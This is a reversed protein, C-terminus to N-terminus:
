ALSAGCSDCFKASADNRTGCKSCFPGEAAVGLNGVGKGATLYELGDKAVPAVEGSVYRAQAGLFGTNLAGMGFIFLFGGAALRLILGGGPDPEFDNNMAHVLDIVAPIGIIAAAVVLVVGLIRFGNRVSAQRTLGPNTTM